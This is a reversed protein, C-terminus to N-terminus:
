SEPVLSISTEEYPAEEYCKILGKAAIADKELVKQKIKTEIINEFPFESISVTNEDTWRLKLTDQNFGHLDSSLPIGEKFFPHEKQKATGPENLCLYLSINDGLQVLSYHFKFLQKDIKLTQSIREQRQEENKVFAQATDSTNNLLFRKYHESCLLAAYSDKKEVEDIGNKYLVIKPLNPFTVFTYPVKKEDNWFPKLDFPRWGSDHNYNAYDVSKKFDLGKYLSRKWNAMIDGSAKAHNDQEIMIFKDPHERVIM